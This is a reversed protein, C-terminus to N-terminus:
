IIPLCRLPGIPLTFRAKRFLQVLNSVITSPPNAGSSHHRGMCSNSYNQETVVKAAELQLVARESHFLKHFQLSRSFNRGTFIQQHNQPTANGAGLARFLLWNPLESPMLM